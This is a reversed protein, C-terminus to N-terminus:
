SSPNVSTLPRLELSPAVFPPPSQSSLLSFGRLPKDLRQFTGEFSPFKDETTGVALRYGGVFIVGVHSPDSGGVLGVLQFPGKWRTIVVQGASM